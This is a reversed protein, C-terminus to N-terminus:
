EATREGRIPSEFGAIRVHHMVRPFRRDFGQARHLMSRNDWILLDGVSWRHRYVRSPEVCASLLRQILVKAEHQAMGEIGFMHESIFLGTRGTEPHRRVLPHRASPAAGGFVQTMDVERLAYAQEYDHIGTLEFLSAQEESAIADWGTQLSAFFTDGGEEPVTIGSFLSFSAPMDRFSSDTHWSENISVLHMSVDDDELVAGSEDVNSLRITAADIPGEELSTNEIEGFRLGLEIQAEAELPQDRFLVLGERTVVERLSQWEDDSIPERLDLSLVEVGFPELQRTELSVTLGEREVSFETWRPHQCLDKFEVIRPNGGAVARGGVWISDARQEM